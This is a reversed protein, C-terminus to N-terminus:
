ARRHFTKVDRMCIILYSTASCGVSLQLKQDYYSHFHTHVFVSLSQRFFEELERTLHPDDDSNHTLSVLFYMCVICYRDYLIKKEFCMTTAIIEKGPLNATAESSKAVYQIKLASLRAVDTKDEKSDSILTMIQLAVADIKLCMIRNEHFTLSWSKSYVQLVM